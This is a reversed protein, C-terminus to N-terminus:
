RDRNGGTMEGVINNESDQRTTTNVLWYRTEDSKTRFELERNSAENGQLANDMVKQVSKRFELVIFTSVLPKEFAENKSDGNIEATKDQLQGNWIGWHWLDSYESHWRDSM